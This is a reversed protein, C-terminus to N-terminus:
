NNGEEIRAKLDELYMWRDMKEDLLSRIEAQKTSIESLKFSNTANKLMEEDLAALENELSLIDGEITDYDKQEKYSFKLKKDRIKWSKEKDANEINDPKDSKNSKDVSINDEKSRIELQRIAYDTYGGEYQAIKGNDEFAFIRSVTRDLFYRDHSVIVVIGNFSDLYDELITLTTIDLDNTPEDLILFNPAEMLVRLLNLRRKEGGSLKAIYTYQAEKTFLFKELMASASLTGDKTEVFEATQRIYDIVRLNPDMYAIGVNKNTEIEQSYYGIKITQGINIDGSDQEVKGAIIKMLTTKGCGNKGIFGIRDGKLFIYTFDKILVKEGYAKCIDTLEVTTKGMRTVASSMSVADDHKFNTMSKMEEFREIRAKQKTSRARAGRMIWALENKLISKRKRDSAIQMEERENKLTLFGSYNTRYSYIKGKDVEDIRNCVSDLFYRDHTVMIVAGRYSKLREELWDSMENDLHNTPEDLIIIDSPGVLVAVLAARKKQGGSLEEMKSNFDDIGLKTMMTKAETEIEYQSAGKNMRVIYQLVTEDKEYVQNQALYKIVVHSAKIVEGEDAEEEFALIKLLTSKGTGNIGIIGVKENEELFFSTNDLVKKESFAKTLNAGSLLNM